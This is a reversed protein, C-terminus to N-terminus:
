NTRASKEPVDFGDRSESIETYNLVRATARIVREADFVCHVTTGSDVESDITLDADHRIMVHKAIALGLGTGGVDRSRGKDVRYFRETVRSLDKAPIGRGQDSVILEAGTSESGDTGGGARWCISVLGPNDMYRAANFIINSFASYIEKETGWLSLSEDLDLDIEHRHECLNLAENRIDTLLACVDVKADNDNNEGTELRSLELLDEILLGMRTSQADVEDISKQVIPRVTDDMSSRSDDAELLLRRLNENYGQIVTLPTKLEHSVNAVFDRRMSELRHLRTVDRVILMRRSGRGFGVIRLSLKRGPEATSDIELRSDTDSRQLFTLFEPRRLYNVILHGVDAPYKLGLLRAATSNFASIDGSDGLVVVGDPLAQTANRYRDLMQSLKKRRQSNKRERRIIASSLPAWVGRDEEGVAEMDNRELAHGLRALRLLLWGAYFVAGALWSWSLAGLLLGVLTLGVFAPILRFLESAISSKLITNSCTSNCEFPTKRFAIAWEM